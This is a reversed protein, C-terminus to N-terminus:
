RSFKDLEPQVKAVVQDMAAQPTLQKGFALEVARTLETALMTAVPIAPFTKGHELYKRTIQISQVDLVEPSDRLMNNAMGFGVGTQIYMQQSTAFLVFKFAEEPHKSGSTVVFNSGRPETVPIKSYPLMDVGWQFDAPAYFKLGRWAYSSSSDMMAHQGGIFPDYAEAAMEKLGSLAGMGYIDVFDVAWQLAEVSAPENVTIKTLEPNTLEGGNQWIYPHFAMKGGAPIYGGRIMRGKADKKVLKKSYEVLGDWGVPAKEPDLGVEAFATKNWYLIAHLDLTFPLGYIKSDYITQPWTFKSWDSVDVNYKEIFDDLPYFAGRAALENFYDRPYYVVDPPTGGALSVILKTNLDAVRIMDVKIDPWEAEFDAVMKYLDQEAEATYSHWFSITTKAQVNISMLTMSLVVVIMFLNKRKM